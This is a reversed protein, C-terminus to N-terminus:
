ARNKGPLRNLRRPVNGSSLIQGALISKFQDGGTPPAQRISCYSTMMAHPRSPPADRAFARARSPSHIKSSSRSVAKLYRTRTSCICQQPASVRARMAFQSIHAHQMVLEQRLVIPVRGAMCICDLVVAVTTRNVTQGIPHSRHQKVRTQVRCRYPRSCKGRMACFREHTGSM